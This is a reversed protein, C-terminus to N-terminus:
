STLARFVGLVTVISAIVMAIIVAVYIIDYLIRYIGTYEVEEQRDETQTDEDSNATSKSITEQELESTKQDITQTIVHQTNTEKIKDWNILGSGFTLYALILCTMCITVAVSKVPHKNFIREIMKVTM